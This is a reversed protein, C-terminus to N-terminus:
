PTFGSTELAESPRAPLFPEVRWEGDPRITVTVAGHVATSFLRCPPRYRERLRAASGADSGSIVVARPSAWAALRAPNAALSGHHPSLLVDVTQPDGALLRELGVGELDGTLLLVRRAFEIRLVVSAANDPVGRYGGPPHLVRCRVQPHFALEDGSQLLRMPVGARAIAEGVEAVPAQRFDLFSPAMLVVGIPVRELLGPMGNFHDVDAHSLVVGDLRRGGQSWLAAAITRAARDGDTLSGADYLLRRGDPSEVIVACGHGVSLFTCRLEGPRAPVLGWALGLVVWGSIGQWLRRLPLATPILRTAAALLLYLGALWWGPPAPTFRHGLPTEASWGVIGLLGTLLTSFVAAPATALLPHVLGTLMLVYGAALLLATVPILAVNVVLGVPALLHFHWATLPLTFLWIAGTVRYASRLGRGLGAALRRWRSWEGQSERAALRTVTRAAEGRCSWLIGWVALFSLQAGPDFLDTPRYLLLLLACLALTQYGGTQRGVARGGVVVATLLAARLVPPRQDTLLAYGLVGALLIAATAAPRVNALRAILLLLGALIGVHLGSIALLHMTGSEAFQQSAEQPLRTRDGLLLSLALPVQATPLHTTFLTECEQRLAARGHHFWDLWGRERGIVRVHEPHDVRLLADVGQARLFAAYDFDGPNRPGFPRHLKGYVEVVDGVQGERWHGTVEVRVVGSLPLEAGEPGITRCEVLGISRDVRMWAPAGRSPDVPDLVLPSRLRATVRAPRPADSACTSVNDAERVSWVLHHRVGGLGVWVLLVAGAAARNWRGARQLLGATLLLTASGALWTALTPSWWRDGLIGLALALVVPVAPERRVAALDPGSASSTRGGAAAAPGSSAGATGAM